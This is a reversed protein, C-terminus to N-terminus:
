IMQIITKTIFAKMAKRTFQNKHANGKYKVVHKSGCKYMYIM